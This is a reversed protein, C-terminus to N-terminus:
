MAKAKEILSMGQDVPTSVLNGNDDRKLSDEIKPRAARKATLTAEELPKLCMQILPALMNEDYSNAQHFSNLTRNGMKGEASTLMKFDKSKQFEREALKKAFHKRIQQIQLASFEPMNMKVTKKAPFLYEQSNWVGIFDDDSFNTFRFSGDFDPPLISEYQMVKKLESM